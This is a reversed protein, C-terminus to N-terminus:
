LHRDAVLDAVIKASNLALPIGGGPHVSGGCFYLGKIQPSFNPHRLFASMRSNSASGYLAGRYSSSQQEISVPDLTEEAVIHDEINVGLINSLRAIIAPRLRKKIAPWDQGFNAPTNVMVFWNEGDPPADAAEIKSSIHVYVTFDEAVNEEQFIHAFEDRYDKSFFINHLDLQPFQRNLGWYFIVASSSPPQKLSQGPPNVGKLLNRYAPNVDSNCVVVEGEIMRDNVRLGKVRKGERAIEQVAAGYHFVVGQERALRLLSEIIARMGGLPHYTGLNHELHPIMSMIGPSLFPSSGNYTAFRDFIQILKPHSLRKENLQHLSEFLHLKHMRALGQLVEASFYNRWQHLSRELFIRHTTNYMLAASNLYEVIEKGEVGLVEEVERAFRDVGAYATIVTKDDWFYRCAIDSKVYKFYDKPEKGCLSFLEDVLQPLTFLSPGADFRYGDISFERLKGGAWANKEFVEVSMGRAALRIASAIGAIGSGVVLAKSM